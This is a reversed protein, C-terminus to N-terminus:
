FSPLVKRSAQCQSYVARSSYKKLYSHNQFYGPRFNSRFKSLPSQSQDTRIPDGTSHKQTVGEKVLSEMSKLKSSNKNEASQYQLLKYNERIQDLILFSYLKLISYGEEAAAPFMQYREEMLAIPSTLYVLYFSTSLAKLDGPRTNPKRCVDSSNDNM